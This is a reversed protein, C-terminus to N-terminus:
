SQEDPHPHDNNYQVVDFVVRGTPMRAGYKALVEQIEGIQEATADEPITPPNRDGKAEGLSLWVAVIANAATTLRPVLAKGSVDTTTWAKAETACIVFDCKAVQYTEKNDFSSTREEAVPHAYVLLHGIHDSNTYAGSPKGPGAGGVDFGATANLNDPM